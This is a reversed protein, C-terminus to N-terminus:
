FGCGGRGGVERGLVSMNKMESIEDKKSLHSMCSTKFNAKEV